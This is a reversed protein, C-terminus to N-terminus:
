APAAFAHRFTFAQATAGYERLHGLRESAEVVSPRHGAPVWWLVQHAQEVREFWERRRKLMETHASKYVYDSLSQVDHWVSMNVLVEDGFPRIATADGAEDQLRWVYGPSGEALANIRELNAVFDAMEPSELPTKMWAINLQALHYASM